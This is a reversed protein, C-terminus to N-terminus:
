FAQRLFPRSPIGRKTGIENWAAVDVMDAEEETFEGRQFGVVVELGALERLERIYRAYAPNVKETTSM